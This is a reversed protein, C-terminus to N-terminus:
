VKIWLHIHRVAKFTGKVIKTSAKLSREFLIIEDTKRNLASLCDVIFEAVMYNGFRGDITTWVLYQDFDRPLQYPFKNTALVFDDGDLYDMVENVLKPDDRQANYIAHMDPSKVPLLQLDRIKKRDALISESNPYNEPRIIEPAEFAEGQHIHMPTMLDFVADVKEKLDTGWYLKPKLIHTVSM